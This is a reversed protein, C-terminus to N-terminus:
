LRTNAGPVGLRPPRKRTLRGDIMGLVDVFHLKLLIFYENMTMKKQVNCWIITCMNQRVHIWDEGKGPHNWLRVLSRSQHSCIVVLMPVNRGLSQSPDRALAYFKSIMQKSKIGPRFAHMFVGQHIDGFIMGRSNLLALILRICTYPWYQVLRFSTNTSQVRPLTVHLM